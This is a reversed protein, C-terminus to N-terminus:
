IIVEMKRNAQKKKSSALSNALDSWAQVAKAFHHQLSLVFFVPLILYSGTEAGAEHGSL